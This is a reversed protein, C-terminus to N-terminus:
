TQILLSVFLFHSVAARIAAAADQFENYPKKASLFIGRLAVGMACQPDEFAPFRPAVTERFCEEEHPTGLCEDFTQQVLHWSANHPSLDCSLLSSQM